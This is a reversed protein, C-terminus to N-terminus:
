SVLRRQLETSKRILSTGLMADIPALALAALRHPRDLPNAFFSKLLYRAGLAFERQEFANAAVNEYHKARIRKAYAGGRSEFAAANKQLFQEVAIAVPRAPRGSPSHVRALPQHVVAYRFRETMRLVWDWDECFRMSEDLGGVADLVAKNVVLTTGNGLDCRAHLYESWSPPEPLRVHREVGNEIAYYECGCLDCDGRGLLAVQEALKTPLWEDDSDLLAVYEGRAAAIAANRAGSPGKNTELRLVGIRADGFSELVEASNDTSADDVAVMEWDTFTQALVSGVCPGLTGARNYVPLIVTVKPGSVHM